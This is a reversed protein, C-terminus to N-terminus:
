PGQRWELRGQYDLLCAWTEVRGGLQREVAERYRALQPKFETALLRDREAQTEIRTTKFDVIQWVGLGDEVLLDIYGSAFGERHTLSFPVEHYQRAREFAAWRADARLRALLREVHAIHGAAEAPELRGAERVAAELLPHLRADGPFIRRRIALHVLNGVLTADERARAALIGEHRQRAAELFPLKDDSVELTGEPVPRYLPELAADDPPSPRARAPRQTAAAAEHVTRLAIQGGTGPLTVVVPTAVGAAAIADPPLTDELLSFWSGGRRGGRYGIVILMEKARTAGVYLLRQEEAQEEEREMAKALRYSLPEEETRRGPRAVVGMERSLLIRSYDAPARRSADALVVVPFELGKAKHVTMLRVAGQAESPAEGERVGAAKLTVIYELFDEVRVIGSAHADQLLKDVNRQLREGAPAARLAAGFPTNDLLDKLLEGVSVRNAMTALREVEGRAREARAQEGEGLAGLGSQLARRFSVPEGGAQPWRLRFLASDSLGFAPSRLLGAMALDDRPNAVARLLNLLDRIEPRDYFGRGAVTVFPIGAEELAREFEPFSTSARFLLAMDDWAAGARALEGLRRALAAAALSRSEEASAGEGILMEVFPPAMKASERNRVAELEEFDVQYARRAAGADMVPALLGNLADVLRPHARFTESLHLVEGGIRGAAQEVRVFVTVDAGRFRYISQKADGVVFLGGHQGDRAGSLAEVIRRQRENTDQFEDVLVAQVESRWRRRVDERELLRVAKDELDDFDLANDQQRARLYFEDAKALLRHLGPVLARLVQEARVLGEPDKLSGLWHEVQADYHERIRDICAKAEGDRKGARKDLGPDRVRALHGIAGLLEPQALAEALAGWAELLQQVQSALKPGADHELAGDKELQRLHEIAGSVEEGDTFERLRAALTRDWRDMLAEGAFSELADLRFAILHILGERLQRPAFARLVPVLSEEGSAWALGDEVAQAKWAAALGEELVEFAPDVEAEVPHARLIEACLSHITGIRATDIDAEIAAWRPCDEGSRADHVWESVRARIRNRMERAAKETFTVAVVARPTLGEELLALYRATLTRTKGSGAGATVVVDRGRTAVAERQKGRLQLQDLELISAPM